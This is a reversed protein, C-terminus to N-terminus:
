RSRSSEKEEKVVAISDVLHNALEPSLGNMNLKDNKHTVIRVSNKTSDRMDSVITAPFTDNYLVYSTAMDTLFQSELGQDLVFNKIMVMEPTGTENIRQVTTNCKNNEKMFIEMVISDDERSSQYIPILDGLYEECRRADFQEDM